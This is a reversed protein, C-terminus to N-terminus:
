VRAQVNAGGQAGSTFEMAQVQFLEGLGCSDAATVQRRELVHTELIEGRTGKNDSVNPGIGPGQMEVRLRSDRAKALIRRVLILAQARRDAHATFAIRAQGEEDDGPQDHHDPDRKPVDGLM